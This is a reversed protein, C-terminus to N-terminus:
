FSVGLTLSLTHLQVKTESNAFEGSAISSAGVNRTSPLDWQYALDLTYRGITYGAGLALTHEFITASVPTLTHDPAPSNGYSYGARLRWAESPAHEVGLHVAYRDSWDLPVSDFIQNSGVFGNIDANDGNTLQVPLRDRAQSWNQWDAQFALRWRPNIDWLLGAAVSRPLVNEVEVDYVFDPRFAAFAGGLAALQAGANGRATGNATMQTETRYSVGLQLNERAKWLLGIQGNWGFGDPEMNLLTKFGTLAPHSQFVYPMVLANDNYVLGVSAGLSLTDTLAWGAGLASRIAVFKSRYEENGYSTTGGLGGPADNLRWKGELASDPNVSLGFTFPRDKIPLAVAVDPFAGLRTDVPVDRNVANSFRAAAIVGNVGLQVQAREIGALGAPNASMAGLPDSAWGADAGAVGQARAGVGNRSAGNALLSDTAITLALLGLLFPTGSPRM